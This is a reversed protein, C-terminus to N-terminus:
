ERNGRLQSYETVAYCARSVTVAYSATGVTVAYCARSVTVAYSATDVTVAYCARGVTVV